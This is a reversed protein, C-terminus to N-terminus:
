IAFEKSLFDRISDGIGCFHLRPEPKQSGHQCAGLLSCLQVDSLIAPYTARRKVVDDRRRHSRARSGARRFSASVLLIDGAGPEGEVGRSPGLRGVTRMFAPFAFDFDTSM